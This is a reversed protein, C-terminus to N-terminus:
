LAECKQGKHKLVSDVWRRHNGCLLMGAPSKWKAPKGCTYYNEDDGMTQVCTPVRVLSNLSDSADPKKSKTTTM